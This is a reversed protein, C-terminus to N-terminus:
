QTIRNLIISCIIIVPHGRRRITLFIIFYKFVKDFDFQVFAKLLEAAMKSADSRAIGAMSKIIHEGLGDITEKNAYGLVYNRTEHDYSKITLYGTQFLLTKLDIDDVEFQGLEGATAEINEFKQM